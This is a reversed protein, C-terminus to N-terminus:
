DCFGGVDEGSNKREEGAFECLWLWLLLSFTGAFPTFMDLGNLCCLLWTPPLLSPPLVGLAMPPIM